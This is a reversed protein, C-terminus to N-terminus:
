RSQTWSKAHKVRDSAVHLCFLDCSPHVDARCTTILLFMLLWLQQQLLDVVSMKRRLPSM